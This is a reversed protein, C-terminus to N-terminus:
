RVKHLLRRAAIVSVAAILVLFISAPEPVVDLRFEQALLADAQTTPHFDDFFLYKSPDACVTIGNYCPDKLDTFGYASANAVFSRLLGATDVYRVGAPLQSVLAANFANTLESAEGSVLAGLSEFYPTLGLDPMGPVLIDKAGQSQLGDVITLIDSVGRAIVQEPTKDLPSPSLFDNAGGWVIFLGGLYPAIANKSDAYETLMGPLGATGFSTPTGNDSYNGIGTTAGIWAFDVLTAGLGSALQEVAVPGNSRRGDFYPAGPQGTAKFLNGNDSLSDGYVVISSISGARAAASTFVAAALVGVFAKLM